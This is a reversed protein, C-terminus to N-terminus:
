SCGSSMFSIIIQCFIVHVFTSFLKSLKVEKLPSKNLLFQATFNFILNMRIPITNDHFGKKNKLKGVAIKEPSGKAINLNKTVINFFKLEKM